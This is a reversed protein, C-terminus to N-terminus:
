ERFLNTQGKVEESRNIDFVVEQDDFLSKIRKRMVRETSSNVPQDVSVVIIDDLDVNLEGVKGGITLDFNLHEM